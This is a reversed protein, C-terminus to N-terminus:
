SYLYSVDLPIILIFNVSCILVYLKSGSKLSSGSLELEDKSLTLYEDSSSSCTAADDNHNMTIARWNLASQNGSSNTLAVACRQLAARGGVGAM